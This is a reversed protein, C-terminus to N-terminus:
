REIKEPKRGFVPASPMVLPEQYQELL